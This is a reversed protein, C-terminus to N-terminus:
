AMVGYNCQQVYFKLDYNSKIQDDGILLYTWLKEDLGKKKFYKNIEECHKVSAEAKTKVEKDELNNSAKVEIILKSDSTEVIFDPEYSKNGSYNIDVQGTSPKLWKLCYEDSDLINALKLEPKSHFKYARHISKKFGSFLTDKFRLVDLNQGETNSLEQTYTIHLAKIETKGTSIKTEFGLDEQYLHQSIQQYIRDAIEKRYYRVLSSVRKEETFKSFFHDMLRNLLKYLSDGQSDYDIEPYNLLEVLLEQKLEDASRILEEFKLSTSYKQADTDQRLAQTKLEQNSPPQYIAFPDLSLEFDNIKFDAIDVPQTTARPIDINNEAKLTLEKELNEILEKAKSKDSVSNYITEKIQNKTSDSVNSQMLNVFLTMARLKAEIEERSQNQINSITTEAKNAETSQHENVLLQTEIDAILQSRYQENEINKEIEEKTHMVEAKSTITASKIDKIAIENPDIEIVNTKNIISDPKNAEEIIAEYKDHAIITLTDLEPLGAENIRKGLPLRLGRGITQETLTQSASARLPVITYLNNVDWGEGLKNVHIVIEVTNEPHELKMLAKIYDSDSKMKSHVQIASNKYYADFFKDSKVYNLIQTAHEIDKTSVLVFPKIVQINNEKCYAELKAKIERHKHIADELKLKELEDEEYKSPDFNKRTLVAPEKVFGDRIASALSYEYVINQFRKEGDKKKKSEIIPTATLEIGLKPKLEDLVEIGRDARYRHAEDMILVLDELNSLYDFYSEGLTEKFRKIKPMSSQKDGRAESDLKGKNFINITVEPSDKSLQLQGSALYDYDEGTIVRPTHVAFTDIGKFVYKKSSSNKFDDKLKEYITINPALIFYNKIKYAKYLYSIFAGMLRTKGVGTALAFCLNPFSREFEGFTPYLDKIEQILIDMDPSGDLISSDDTIRSLIELSLQQPERLSLRQNIYNRIQMNM